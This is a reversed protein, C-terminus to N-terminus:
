GGAATVAHVKVPDYTYSAPTSATGVTGTGRASTINGIPDYTYAVDFPDPGTGDAVAVDCDSDSTTFGSTLRDLVDYDFCQFQSLVDDDFEHIRDLNGVADWEYELTRILEANADTDPEQPDPSPYHIATNGVALEIADQALAGRAYALSPYVVAPDAGLANRNEGLATVWGAKTEGAPISGLFM